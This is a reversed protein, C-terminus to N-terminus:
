ERGVVQLRSRQQERNNKVRKKKKNSRHTAPYKQRFIMIKDCSISKMRTCVSHILVKNLHYGNIMLRSAM